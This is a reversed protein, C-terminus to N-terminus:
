GVLQFFNIDSLFVFLFSVQGFLQKCLTFVKEQINQKKKERQMLFFIIAKIQGSIEKAWKLTQDKVM